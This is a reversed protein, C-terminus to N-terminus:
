RTRQPRLAQLRTGLNALVLRVPHGPTAALRVLPALIGALLGIGLLGLV